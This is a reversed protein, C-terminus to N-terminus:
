MHHNNIIAHFTKPLNLENEFIKLIIKFVLNEKIPTYFVNSVLRTQTEEKLRTQLDLYLSDLGERSTQLTEREAARDEESAQKWFYFVQFSTKVYVFMASIRCCHVQLQKSHQSTIEENQSRLTQIEEHIKANETRAINLDDRLLVNGTQLSEVKQQLNGVSTRFISVFLIEM